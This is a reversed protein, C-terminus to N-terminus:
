ISFLLDIIAAMMLKCKIIQAFIKRLYNFIIINITKNFKGYKNHMDHRDCKDCKNCSDNIVIIIIYIVNIIVYIAM